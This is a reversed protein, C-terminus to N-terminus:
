AKTVEELLAVSEQVLTDGAPDALIGPRNTKGGINGLSGNAPAVIFLYPLDIASRIEDERPTHLECETGLFLIPGIQIVQVESPVSSVRVSKVKELQKRARQWYVYREMVDGMPMSYTGNTSGGDPNEAITKDLVERTRVIAKELDEISPLPGIPIEIKRSISAVSDVEIDQLDKRAAMLQEALVKGLREVERYTQETRTNRTSIDGAAGMLLVVEAGGLSQSMTECTVGVYDSSTLLNDFGVISPHCAYSVVEGIVSGDKRVFELIGAFPQYPPTRKERTTGIGEIPSRTARLTCEEQNAIADEVAKAIRDVVLGTYAPEGFYDPDIGPAASETGLGGPASHVHTHSILVNSGPIKTRKEILARARAIVASTMLALDCSVLAVTNGEHSVAFARAMLPDHQGVVPLQRETAFCGFLTDVPPSIDQKSFGARM